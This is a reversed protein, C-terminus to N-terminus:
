RSSFVPVALWGLGSCLGCLLAQETGQGHGLPCDVAGSPREPQLGALEPYRLAAKALAFRKMSPDAVPTPEGDWPCEFVAFEQDLFLTGGIFEGVLLCGKSAAMAGAATTGEMTRLRELVSSLAARLSADDTRSSM